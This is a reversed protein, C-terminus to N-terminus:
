QWPSQLYDDKTVTYIGHLFDWRVINKQWTMGNRLAVHISSKNEPRILSILKDPKFNNFGYAKCAMAAKTAYGYHWYKRILGYGIEVEDKGDVDEQFILGCYGIVEHTDKKECCYLSFGHKQYHEKVQVLWQRIEEMSKTGPFYQMAIHDSFLQYLHIADKEAFTRLVLRLTEIITISTM